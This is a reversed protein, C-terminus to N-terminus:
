MATLDFEQTFSPLGTKSVEVKVKWAGNMGLNGQVAYRGKGQATATGSITMNMGPHNATVKVIADNVPQGKADTVDVIFQVSGMM